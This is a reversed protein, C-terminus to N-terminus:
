HLDFARSLDRNPTLSHCSVCNAGKDKVSAIVGGSPLYEAWLWGSGANSNSPDKKMVAYLTLTSGNHVEKVLISGTPFSNGVPLEGTGDLAGAATANFRIKIDGHPGMGPLAAGAQYYTYGSAVVEAFLAADPDQPSPTPTESSTCSYIVIVGACILTLNRITRSANIKM